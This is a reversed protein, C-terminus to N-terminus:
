DSKNYSAERPLCYDPLNVLALPRLAATLSPSPDGSRRRLDSSLSVPAGPCAQASVQTHQTHSHGPGKGPTVSQAWRGTVHM